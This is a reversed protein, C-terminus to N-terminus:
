DGRPRYGRLMRRGQEYIFRITLGLLGARVEVLIESSWSFLPVKPIAVALLAAFFAMAFIGFIMKGLGQPRKEPEFHYSAFAGVLAASVAWWTLGFVAVSAAATAVGKSALENM